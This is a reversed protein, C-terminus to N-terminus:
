VLGSAFPPVKASSGRCILCVRPQRGLTLPDADLLPDPDPLPPVEPSPDDSYGGGGYDRESQYEQAVKGGGGGLRMELIPPAEELLRLARQEM